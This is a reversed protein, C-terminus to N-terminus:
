GNGFNSFISVKEYSYNTKSIYNTLHTIDLMKHYPPFSQAHVEVLTLEHRSMQSQVFTIYKQKAEEDLHKAESVYKLIYYLNRIYHEYCGYWQKKFLTYSIDKNLLHRQRDDESIDYILNCYEIQTNKIIKKWEKQKKGEMVNEPDKKEWKNDFAQISDLTDSEFYKKNIKTELSETIIQLEKTAFVFFLRGKIRQMSVRADEDIFECDVTIEETLKRQSELLNFFTTEFRELRHADKENRIGHNQSNLTAYLLLANAIAVCTGLYVPWFQLMPYCIHECLVNVILIGIGIISLLILIISIILGIRNWEVRCCISCKMNTNKQAEYFV